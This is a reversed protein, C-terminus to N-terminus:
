DDYGDMWYAREITCGAYPCADRSLNNAKASQAEGVIMRYYGPDTERWDPKIANVADTMTEDGLNQHQQPGQRGGVEHSPNGKPNCALLPASM